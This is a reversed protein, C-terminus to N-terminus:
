FFIKLYACIELAMMLVSVCEVCNEFYGNLLRYKDIQSLSMENEMHGSYGSHIGEM